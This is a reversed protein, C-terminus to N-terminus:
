SHLKGSDYMYKTTAETRHTMKQGKPITGMGNTSDGVKIHNESMIEIRDMEGGNKNKNLQNKVDNIEKGATIVEIKVAELVPKYEGFALNM